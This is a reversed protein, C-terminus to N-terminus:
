HSNQDQSLHRNILNVDDLTDIDLLLEKAPWEVWVVRKKQIIEKGGKDGELLLLEKFVSKRYAVPHTQQGATKAAIVEANSIKVTEVIRKILEADLFPQDIVFVILVDYDKEIFKIGCKISTSIGNRWDPNHVIAISPNEIVKIIADSFAGVVVYLDAIGGKKIVSVMHSILPKGNIMMLQKPYGLRKSGGAALLLGAIKPDQLNSKM